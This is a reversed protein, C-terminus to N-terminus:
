GGPRQPSRDGALVAYVLTDTWEGKCWWNQRLHAERRLGLRECMRASADNRTDLQASVRHVGYCDFAVDLVAAAAETALGRGAVDPHFAWGIEALRRDGDPAWLVVDGVLHGDLLAVIGLSRADTTFGNRTLRKAMHGGISEDTWPDFPVYRVVDPDGYYARLPEADEPQHLRLVLRETRIPLDPETLDPEPLEPEPLEPETV